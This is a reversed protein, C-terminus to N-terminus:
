KVGQNYIQRPMKAGDGVEADVSLTGGRTVGLAVKTYGMARARELVALAMDVQETRTVTEAM